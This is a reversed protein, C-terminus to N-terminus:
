RRIFEQHTHTHLPPPSATIVSHIEQLALQLDAAERLEVAPTDLTGDFFQLFSCFLFTKLIGDPAKQHDKINQCMEFTFYIM